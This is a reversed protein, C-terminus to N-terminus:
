QKSRCPFHPVATSPLSFVAVVFTRSGTKSNAVNTAVHTHWRNYISKKCKDAPRCPPSMSCWLRGAVQQPDLTVVIVPIDTFLERSGSIIEGALGM